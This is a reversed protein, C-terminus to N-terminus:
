ESANQTQQESAGTTSKEEESNSLSTEPQPVLKSVDSVEDSDSNQVNVVVNDLIDGGNNLDVEIDEDPYDDFDDSTDVEVDQLRFFREINRDLSIYGTEDTLSPETNVEGDDYNKLDSLTRFRTSPVSFVEGQKDVFNTVTPKFLGDEIKIDTM